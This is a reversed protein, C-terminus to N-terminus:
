LRLKRVKRKPKRTPGQSSEASLKAPSAPSFLQAAALEENAASEQLELREVEQPSMGDEAQLRRGRQLQRRAYALGTAARAAASRMRRLNAKAASANFDLPV